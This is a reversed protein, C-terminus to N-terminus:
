SRSVSERSEPGTEGSTTYLAIGPAPCINQFSLTRRANCPTGSGPAIYRFGIEGSEVPKSFALGAAHNRLRIPRIQITIIESTM